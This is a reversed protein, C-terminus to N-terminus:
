RKAKKKFEKIRNTPCSKKHPEPLHGMVDCYFCYCAMGGDVWPDELSVMMSGETGTQTM